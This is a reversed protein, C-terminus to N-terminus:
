SSVDGQHIVGYVCRLVLEQAAISQVDVFLFTNVRDLRVASVRLVFVNEHIGIYHLFIKEEVENCLGVLHGSHIRENIDNVLLAMIQIHTRNRM